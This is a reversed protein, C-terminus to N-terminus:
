DNELRASGVYVGKSDMLLIPSGGAPLTGWSVIKAVFKTLIFALEPEPSCRGDPARFAQGDCEIEVVFRAM